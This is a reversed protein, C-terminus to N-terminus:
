IAFDMPSGHPGGPVQQGWIYGMNAVHVKSDPNTVLTSSPANIWVYPYLKRLPLISRLGCELRENKMM